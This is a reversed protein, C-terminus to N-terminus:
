NVMIQSTNQMVLSLTRCFHGLPSVVSIVETTINSLWRGWQLALKQKKMARAKMCQQSYTLATAFGGFSGVM